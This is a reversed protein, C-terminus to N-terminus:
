DPKQDRKDPMPEWDLIFIDVTSQEVIQMLIALFRFALILGFIIDFIRYSTEWDDVSPLLIYANAQLKYTIFWYGATFFVIWFM